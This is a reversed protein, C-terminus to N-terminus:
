SPRRRRDVQHHTARSSLAVDDDGADAGDGRQPDAGAREVLAPTGAGRADLAAFAGRALELRGVVQRHLLGAARVAERLERHDGAVLRTASAPSPRRAATRGSASRRAHDAGADAAEARELAALLHQQSCPARLTSAARRAASSSCRRRRGRERHAVLQEAVDNPTTDAQAAPACAIPSAARMIWYPSASATTVPPESAASVGSARAAKAASSASDGVPMERGNSARRSPKTM